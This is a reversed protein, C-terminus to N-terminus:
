SNEKKVISNNELINKRLGGEPVIKKGSSNERRLPTRLPIRFEALSNERKM